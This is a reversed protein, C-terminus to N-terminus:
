TSKAINKDWISSKPKAIGQKQCQDQEWGRKQICLRFIHESESFPMFDM